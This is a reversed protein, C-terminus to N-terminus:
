LGSATKKTASLGLKAKFSVLSFFPSYHRATNDQSKLKLQIGSLKHLWEKEEVKCTQAAQLIVKNAIESQYNIHPHYTTCLELKIGKRAAWDKFYYLM